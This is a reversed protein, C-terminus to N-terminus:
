LFLWLLGIASGLATGAAFPIIVKKNKESGDNKSRRARTGAASFTKAEVIKNAEALIDNEGLDNARLDSKLVFYAMEFPSEDDGKVMIMKRQCGKIM